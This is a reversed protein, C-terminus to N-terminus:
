PTPVAYLVTAARPSGLVEWSATARRLAAGTVAADHGYTAHLRELESYGVWLHTFGAGRLRRALTSAAPNDDLFRTLPSRDFASAYAMPTRVYLLAANNGVVMVRSGAPLLNVRDTGSTGDPQPETRSDVLWGPAIVAPRGDADRYRPAQNWVVSVAHVALALAGSAMVGRGGGAMPRRFLALGAWGLGALAALPLVVPLLFRSQLHTLALWGAFQWVVVFTLGGVAWRPSAPPGVDAARAEGGRDAACANKRGAAWWALGGGSAALLWLLPLGGERGFRAVNHREHPPAAGGVAGYGANGLAQRWVAGATSVDPGRARRGHARDWRETLGADWHGAGLWSTGLPFVPNGTWAANRVLWPSLTAAGVAACLLGAAVAPRGGRWRAAGAMVLVGLPLALAYGATPKALTAVGALVGVAVARRRWGWPGGGLVLTLGAAGCALVAMENYALSGTVQVWPTLLVLAAALAGAGRGGGLRAVLAGVNWAALVALAVHFLQCVYVASEVLGAARQGGSAGLGLGGNLVALAAYGAEVLGPLYAYVSHSLEAMGGAAVWERPIQLHYSTVDYGAAEVRWMTGPPCCAAVLMVALGPVGLVATWPWGTRQARASDPGRGAAASAAQRDRRAAVGWCVCGALVNGAVAPMSLGWGGTAGGIWAVLYNLWLWTAMGLAMRVAALGSGRRWGWLAGYGWAAAGVAALVVVSQVWILVMGAALGGPPPDAAGRFVVSVGVAFVALATM